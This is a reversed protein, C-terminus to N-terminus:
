NKLVHSKDLPLVTLEEINYPDALVVLDEIKLLLYPVM